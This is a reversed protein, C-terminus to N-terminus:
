RCSENLKMSHIVERRVSIILSFSQAVLSANFNSSMHGGSGSDDFEVSWLFYSMSAHSM